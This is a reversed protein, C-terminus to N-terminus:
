NFWGWKKTSSTQPSLSHFSTIWCLRGIKGITLSFSLLALKAGAVQPLAVALVAATSSWAGKVRGLFEMRHEEWPHWCIHWPFVLLLKPSIFSSSRRWKAPSRLVRNGLTPQGQLSIPCRSAAESKPFGFSCQSTSSGLFSRWLLREQLQSAIQTYELCFSGEQTQLQPWLPCNAHPFGAAALVATAGAINEAKYSGTIQGPGWHRVRMCCWLYPVLCENM